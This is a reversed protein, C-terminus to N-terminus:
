LSELFQEVKPVMNLGVHAVGPVVERQVPLGHDQWNRFLTANREIRNRGLAEMGEVHHTYGPPYTFEVTDDGGVLLQSPVRRLAELDIEKGFRQSFDRTGVWFDHADDLLTIGGPSGVTVSSLREPHLYYFRHVFHAGGSFGFLDFKPFAMDLLAELEAVLALLLEDYRFGDEDLYKYGDAENTGFPDIPFLPALVVYRNREAFPALADRYAMANRMSGHMAVLLRFGDKGEMLAKPLHVCYHFRADVRSAYMSRPWRLRADEHYSQM